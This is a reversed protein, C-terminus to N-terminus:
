AKKLYKNAAYYYRGNYYIKYWTYGDAKVSYNAVVKVATGKNFTGGINYSTGAGTRYNVKEITKYNVLSQSYRQVLGKRDYGSLSSDKCARVTYSYTIGGVASGDTYSVATGKNTTGIRQWSGSGTKRYIYYADAGKVSKWSIHMGDQKSAAKDLVPVSLCVIGKLSHYASITNKNVARLTYVYKEGNVAKKDTYSLTSESVSALRSYVGDSGKRYLYYESAGKVKNWSIHIGNQVNSVSSIVPYALCYITSTSKYTGISNGSVARVTYTYTSGSEATKDTYNLTNGSSKGLRTYKGDGGKRYVYYESAGKVKNWSIKVGDATNESKTLTVQTLYMISKYSSKESEQLTTSGSASSQKKLYQSAVYYDSGSYHIKYWTYGDATKKYSPDVKVQVDSELTGAKAYSTGPGTRYNVSETTVYTDYANDGVYSTVAYYYNTGCSVNKDTYRNIDGDSVSDIQTWADSLSTKRYINYGSVGATVKWQLLIGNELNQLNSIAPPAIEDKGYQEWYTNKALNGRTVSVTERNAPVEFNYCWYWGADYAGDATNKEDLMYNYIKSYSNVLEYKLFALQGELTTYDLNNSKCYNILNTKRDAHWQCIGYSTNNDGEMHPDFGSEYYINALVGCAAASNMKLEDVLYNFVITTNSSESNSSLLSIGDGAYLFVSIYPVETLLDLDASLQYQTEDFLPSFQYYHGETEEYDGTVCYWTVPVTYVEKGGDLYVNMTKPMVEVLEELSPKDAYAIDIRRDEEALDQVGTITHMEVETETETEMSETETSETETSETETSEIDDSGPVESDDISAIQNDAEIDAIDTEETEQVASEAQLAVDTMEEQAYAIEPRIQAFVLVSMLCGALLRKGIKKM